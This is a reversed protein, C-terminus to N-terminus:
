VDRGTCISMFYVGKVGALLLAQSVTDATNGTTYIDDVLLIYSYKVINDNIQFANELNKKREKDNLNKMPATDRTRIVLDSCVPINMERGLANAFVEAQNYGRLREQRKFMPVPLIADIEKRDFWDNYKRYAFAAFYDAYERKNSYKFRYMTQKIAGKYQWLAKGQTFSIINNSKKRKCEPCLENYKDLLGRGCHMCSNGDISYLMTHCKQHVLEGPEDLLGDCVPCRPVFLIGM